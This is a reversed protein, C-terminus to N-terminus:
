VRRRTVPEDFLSPEVQEVLEWWSLELGAEENSMAYWKTAHLDFIIGDDSWAGADTGADQVPKMLNDLDRFTVRVFPERGGEKLRQPRPMLFTAQLIVPGVCKHNWDGQNRIVRAVNARWEHVGDDSDKQPISRTHKRLWQIGKRVDAQSPYPGRMLQAQIEVTKPLISAFFMGTGARPEGIM